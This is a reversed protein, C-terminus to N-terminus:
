VIRKTPLTLHTYSVPVLAFVLNSPTTSLQRIFELQLPALPTDTM